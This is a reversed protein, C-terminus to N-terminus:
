YWEGGDDETDQTDSNDSDSDTDSEKKPVKQDEDWIFKGNNEDLKLDAKVKSPVFHKQYFKQYDGMSYKVGILQLNHESILVPKLHKIMARCASDKFLEQQYSHVEDFSFFGKINMESAHAGEQLEIEFNRVSFRTFNFRSIEYLLKGEDVSDKSFPIVMVFNELRNATLSDNKLAAEDGKKAADSRSAWLSNIDYVGTGPIRGAEINKVINGAIESIKDDTYDTAVTRMEKVFNDIDNERLKTMADLFLFKARNEGKPYKVESIRCNKEMTAYDGTRYANYTAAYLSDEIHKGYRANEVYDPATILKTLSSDPFEAAMRNKYVDAEGPRGWHLELLYLQYLLEEMPQYDPFDRYLRLLTSKALGYNELEDKEIVGANYLAPKLKENSAKMQEPTFPLQALYYERKLPDNLASDSAADKGAKQRGQKISDTAAISDATETSDNGAEDNGATAANSLISKNSRRWNDENKRNGWLKRFQEAGKTVSERNYFYWTANRGNNSGMNNGAIMSQSKDAGGRGHAKAISDAQSKALEKQRKKEMEILKDIAAFREKEPMRVLAQLSDQLFIESTYPVLKDLVKTKESIEEYRDHQKDLIGLATNYCRQAYDFRHRTWYIDGLRLNLIAKPMGNQTAKANGTEYAEIARTTDSTAMFVNGIAYFVRDLFDKNNAKRAMRNLKALKSKNSGQPMVETQLIDANFRLEYPPSQRNCKKFAKYAEAKRGTEQYLQGLLFYGRARPIGHPLTKIEKELFPTAEKWKKQRLYYNTMATNYDRQAARPINDRRIKNLLDEADYFWDMQTYCLALLARAVNCVQPQDRYLREAYAFTSAAEIYNGTEMQAKGMLIWANKIFPNFERRNRFEKEKPTLRHGRKFEPKRKISYLKIAKECKTVATEFNSQGLKESEKNTVMMLPIMSTYDDKNGDVKAQMGELYAQHGNFFTNYRTKFSKWWRTTSTNKQSACSGLLM